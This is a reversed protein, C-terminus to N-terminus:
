ARFNLGAGGSATRTNADTEVACAMRWTEAEVQLVAAIETVAVSDSISEAALLHQMLFVYLDAVQDCAKKEIVNDSGTVGSLSESLIDFLRTSMECAGKLEGTRYGDSLAAAVEAGRELLMLRLRAPSASDITAQLYSSGIDRGGGYGAGYGGGAPHSIPGGYGGGHGLAYSDAAAELAAESSQGSLEFDDNM